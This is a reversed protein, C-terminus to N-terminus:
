GCGGEGRGACGVRTGKCLPIKTGRSCLLGGGCGYGVYSVSGVAPSPCALVPAPLDCCTDGYGGVGGCVMLCKPGRGKCLVGRGRTQSV